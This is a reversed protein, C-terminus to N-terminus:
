HEIVMCTWSAGFGFTFLVIKNGKKLVGQREMEFLNIIHDCSITHGILKINDTWIKDEPIKLLRGLIQWSRSSVNNPVFWDIDGISLNIKKLAESIVRQSMPFYSALIENEKEPTNWYYSHAIQHFSLIKNKPSNSQVVFGCSADSMLNYIIERDMFPLLCDGALCLVSGKESSNLYNFALNITSLLGSCGQESLTLSPVNKLGLASNIKSGRYIFPSLLNSKENTEKNLGNYLIMMSVDDRISASSLVKKGSDIILQDFDSKKDHVYCQLFGFDKLVQSPSSIKGEKELEEVSLKHRPLTYALANIGISKQNKM